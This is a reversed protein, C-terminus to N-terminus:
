LDGALLEVLLFSAYFEASLSAASGVPAAAAAALELDGLVRKLRAVVQQQEQLGSTGLLTALLEERQRELTAVIEQM